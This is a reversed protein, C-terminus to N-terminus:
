KGKKPASDASSDATVAAVTAVAVRGRDDVRCLFKRQESGKSIKGTIRWSGIAHEAAVEGFRFDALGPKQTLVTECATKAEGESVQAAALTPLLLTLASALLLKMRNM